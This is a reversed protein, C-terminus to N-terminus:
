HCMNIGKKERAERNKNELAAKIECSNENEQIEM